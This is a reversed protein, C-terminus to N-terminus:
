VGMNVKVKGSAVDELSKGVSEKDSANITGGAPPKDGGPGGPPTGGGKNGEFLYPAAEVLGQSWEEMTLPNKGDKGYLVENDPGIPVPKGEQLKFVSRARSLIDTMAGKRVTGVKTVATQVDSDIVVVALQSEAKDARETQETVNSTLKTVQGAHDARMAETRKTVLGDLDNASILDQEELDDLKKKFEAYKVPDVGEFAKMDKVLKDREQMLRINNSRFEGLQTKFTADDSDLIYNQAEDGSETYHEKVVEPFADYEGKSILVKLM